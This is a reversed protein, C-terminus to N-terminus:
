VGVGRSMKLSSLFLSSGDRGPDSDAQLIVGAGPADPQLSCLLHASPAAKGLRSNMQLFPQFSFSLNPISNPSFIGRVCCVMVPPEGDIVSYGTTSDTMIVTCVPQAYSLCLGVAFVKINNKGATVCNMHPM